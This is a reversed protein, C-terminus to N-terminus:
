LEHLQDTGLEGWRFIGGRLSYHIETLRLLETNQYGETRHSTEVLGNVLTIPHKKLQPIKSSNVRKAGLLYRQRHSYLVSIYM